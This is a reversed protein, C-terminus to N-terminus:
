QAGDPRREEPPEPHHERRAPGQARVMGLDSTAAPPTVRGTTAQEASAISVVNAARASVLQPRARRAAYPPPEVRSTVPPAGRKGPFDVLSIRGPSRRDDSMTEIRKPAGDTIPALAMAPPLPPALPDGATGPASASARATGAVAVRLVAVARTAFRAAVLEPRAAAVVVAAFDAAFAALLDVPLAPDFVAELLAALVAAFDGTLDAAFDMPLAWPLAELLRVAVAAALAEEDRPLAAACAAL